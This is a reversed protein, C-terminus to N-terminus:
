WCPATRCFWAGWIEGDNGEVAFLADCWGLWALGYEVGRGEGGGDSTGPVFGSREGALGQGM